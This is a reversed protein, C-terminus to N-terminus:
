CVGVVVLGFMMGAWALSKFRPDVFCALPYLKILGDFRRAFDNM